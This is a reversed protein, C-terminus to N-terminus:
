ETVLPVLVVFAGALDDAFVPDAAVAQASRPVPIREGDERMGRIHFRLAESANAMAEALTDGASFCGPLEPFSIGYASEPDKHILATYHM